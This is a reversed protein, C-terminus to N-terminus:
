QEDKDGFISKGIMNKIAYENNKLEKETKEKHNEVEWPFTLLKDPSKCKKTDIHPMVGMYTWLRQQELEERKNREAFKMYPEIEWLEMEYMVYHPDVGCVTILYMAIDTITSEDEKGDKGKKLEKNSNEMYQKTYDMLEGFEKLMQKTVKKNNGFINAFDMVTMYTEPHKAMYMAYLMYVYNEESIKFYSQGSLKEFMMMTKFNFTLERKDM